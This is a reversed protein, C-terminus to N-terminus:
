EACALDVKLDTEEAIVGEIKRCLAPADRLSAADLGLEQLRAEVSAATRLRPLEALLTDLAQGRAAVSAGGGVPPAPPLAGAAVAREVEPLTGFTVMGPRTLEFALREGDIRAVGPRGAFTWTPLGAVNAARLFLVFRDGPVASLGPSLSTSTKGAGVEVASEVTHLVDVSDGVAFAEGKLVREVWFVQTRDVRKVTGESVTADKGSVFAAVVIEQAAGAQAELTAFGM